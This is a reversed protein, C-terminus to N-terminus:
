DKDVLVAVKAREGAALWCGFIPSTYLLQPRQFAGALSPFTLVWSTLPLADSMGVPKEDSSYGM